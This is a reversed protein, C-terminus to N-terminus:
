LTGDNSSMIAFFSPTRNGEQLLSPSRRASNALFGAEIEEASPLLARGSTLERLLWVNGEARGRDALDVAQASLCPRMAEIEDMLVDIEDSPHKM